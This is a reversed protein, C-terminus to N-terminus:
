LISKRLLYKYPKEDTKKEILTHHMFHCFKPIDYTTSIDDAIILVTKGKDMHRLTKRAMMVPDPCRLGIIDLIYDIHISSNNM